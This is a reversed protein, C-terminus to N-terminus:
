RCERCNQTNTKPEMGIDNEEAMQATRMKAGSKQLELQVKDEM